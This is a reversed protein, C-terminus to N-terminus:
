LFLYYILENSDGPHLWHLNKSTKYLAINRLLYKVYKRYIYLQFCVKAIIDYKMIDSSNNLMDQVANKSSSGPQAGTNVSEKLVIAPKPQFYIYIVGNKSYTIETIAVLDIIIM